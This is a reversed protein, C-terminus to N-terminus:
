TFGSIYKNILTNIFDDISRFLGEYVKHFGVGIILDEMFDKFINIVNNVLDYVCDNIGMVIISVQDNGVPSLIELGRRLQTTGVMYTLAGLGPDRFRSVGQLNDRLSLYASYIMQWPGLVKVAPVITILSNVCDNTLSKVRVLFEDNIPKTLIITALWIRLEGIDSNLRIVYSM